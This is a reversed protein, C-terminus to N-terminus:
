NIEMQCKRLEELCTELDGSFGDFLNRIRATDFVAANEGSQTVQCEPIMVGIQLPQWNAQAAAQLFAAMRQPPVTFILEFEGHIGALMVWSPLGAAAATELAAPHLFTEMAAELRFGAGNLRMLQDLTALVGDSSDMCCSAYDRLLRGEALRATPRYLTELPDAEPKEALRALALANGLGAPGSSYLIDGPRGGMRTLPTQRPVQGLACGTLVTCDGRNTDGGLLFVGCRQLAAAMGSRIGEQFDAPQREDLVMSVLMGLPQAGVAALDSLSAMVTVWGMTFPDRYIGRSIEEVLSDTTVALYYAAAEGALFLEADAQQLDNLQYPARPFGATWRRIFENERIDQHRKM